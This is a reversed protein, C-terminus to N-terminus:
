TYCSDSAEQRIPERHTAAILLRRDSLNGTHQLEITQLTLSITQNVCSSCCRRLIIFGPFISVSFYQRPFNYSPQDWTIRISNDITTCLLNNINSSPVPPIVVTRKLWRGVGCATLPRVSFDYVSDYYHMTVNTTTENTKINWVQWAPWTSHSYAVEYGQPHFCFHFRSLRAYSPWILLCKCTCELLRSMNRRQSCM